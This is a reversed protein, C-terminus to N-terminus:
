QKYQSTMNNQHPPVAPYTQRAFNQLFRNPNNMTPQYTRTTPFNPTFFKINQQPIPYITPSKKTYFINQEQICFSLAEAMTRPRMARINSGLPEKIGSLFTNLCMEAFLKQKAEIVNLNNEHILINNNISSQIEIISSYFQQVSQNTQKLNHLDRILSTENRKDSYHLILNGKINEWILPTGYVNLVENAPGVIKNRIARLVIKAYSTGDVSILHGLIEEVNALFEHLLRPNGDFKPLDKVADPIRLSDFINNPTPLPNQTPPENNTAMEISEPVPTLRRSFTYPRTRHRRM